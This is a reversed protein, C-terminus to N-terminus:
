ETNCLLTAPFIMVTQLRFSSLEAQDENTAGVFNDIADPLRVLRLGGAQFDFIADTARRHRRGDRL